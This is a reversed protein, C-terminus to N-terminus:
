IGPSIAINETMITNVLLLSVLETYIKTDTYYSPNTSRFIAQQKTICMEYIQLLIQYGM